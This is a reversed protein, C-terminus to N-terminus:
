KFDKHVLLKAVIRAYIHRAEPVATLSTRQNSPAHKVDPMRPIAGFVLLMPVRGEPGEPANMAYVAAALCFNGELNLYSARVKHYTSLLLSQM